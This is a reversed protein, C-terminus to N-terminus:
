IGCLLIQIISGIVACMFNPKMIIIFWVMSDASLLTEVSTALLDTIPKSSDCSPLM